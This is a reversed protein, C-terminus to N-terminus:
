RRRGGCSCIIGHRWWAWEYPRPSTDRQRTWTTTGTWQVCWATALRVEVLPDHASGAATAQTDRTYAPSAATRPRHANSAPQASPRQTPPASAGCGRWRVGKPPGAARRAVTDPSEDDTSGLVIPEHVNAGPRM